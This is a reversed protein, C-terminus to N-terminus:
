MQALSPGGVKRLKTYSGDRNRTFLFAAISGRAEGYGVWGKPNYGGCFQGDRTKCVVLAGGLKDVAAHFKLPDWGNRGADYTLKIGREELNTNKLLTRLEAMEKDDSAVPAVDFDDVTAPYQEPFREKGFRKLGMPEEEPAGFFFGFMKEVIDEDKPEPPPTTEEPVTAKEEDKGFFNFMEREVSFPRVQRNSVFGWSSCLFSLTVLSRM